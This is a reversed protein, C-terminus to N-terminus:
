FHHYLHTQTHRALMPLVEPRDESVVPFLPNGTRAEIDTIFAGKRYKFKYTAQCEFPRLPQYDKRGVIEANRGQDAKLNVASNLGSKLQQWM